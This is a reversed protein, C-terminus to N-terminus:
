GDWRKWHYIKGERDSWFQTNRTYGQQIVSGNVIYPAVREKYWLIEGGDGDSDTRAPVGWKLILNKRHAGLWSDLIERESPGSPVTGCAALLLPLLLLARMGAARLRLPRDACKIPPAPSGPRM